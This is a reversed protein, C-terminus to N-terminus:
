QRTTPISSRRLTQKKTTRWAATWFTARRTPKAGLSSNLQCGRDESTGRYLRLKQHKAINLLRAPCDCRHSKFVAHATVGVAKREAEVDHYAKRWATYDALNHRVFLRTM